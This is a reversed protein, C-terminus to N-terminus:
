RYMCIAYSLKVIILYLLSIYDCYLFYKKTINKFDNLTDYHIEKFVNENQWSRITFYRGNM